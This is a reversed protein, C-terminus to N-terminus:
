SNSSIWYAGKIYSNKIKFKGGVYKWIEEKSNFKM